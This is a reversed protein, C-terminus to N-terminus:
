VLVPGTQQYQQLDNENRKENEAGHISRGSALESAVNVTTILAENNSIAHRITLDRLLDKVV